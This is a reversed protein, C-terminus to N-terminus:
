REVTTVLLAQGSLRVGRARASDLAANLARVYDAPPEAVPRMIRFLPESSAIAIIMDTGFPEDVIWEVEKTTAANRANQGLVVKALPRFTRSDGGSNWKSGDSEQFTKGDDQVLHFMTGNSQLYDVHLYAPFDPMKLELVLKNDKKLPSINGRLDLGLAVGQVDDLRGVGRLTDLADCFPESFTKVRWDLAASQAVGTIAGRM